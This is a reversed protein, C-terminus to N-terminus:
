KIFEPVLQRVYEMSQQRVLSNGHLELFLETRDAFTLLLFLFLFDAHRTM